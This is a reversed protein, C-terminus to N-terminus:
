AAKKEKGKGGEEKQPLPSGAERLELERVEGQKTIQFVGQM